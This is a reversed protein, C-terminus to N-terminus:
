PSPIPQQPDVPVVVDPPPAVLIPFPSNCLTEWQEFRWLQDAQLFEAPPFDAFVGAHFVNNM